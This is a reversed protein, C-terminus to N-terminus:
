TVVDVPQIVYNTDTVAVDDVQELGNIIDRSYALIVPFFEYMKTVLDGSCIIRSGKSNPVIRCAIILTDKDFKACINVHDDQMIHSTKVFRLLYQPCVFAISLIDSNGATNLFLRVNVRWFRNSIKYFM